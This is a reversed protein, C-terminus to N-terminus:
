YTEIFLEPHYNMLSDAQKESVVFFTIADGSIEHGNEKLSNIIPQFLKRDLPVNNPKCFTTYCVKGGKFVKANDILEQPLEIKHATDREIIIWNDYDLPVSDSKLIPERIRRTWNAVPFFEIWKKKLLDNKSDKEYNEFGQTNFYYLDPLEKIVFKGKLHQIDHLMQRFIELKHIKKELLRKEMDLAKKRQVVSKEIYDFCDWNLIQSTEDITFGFSRFVRCMDFRRLDDLSYLRYNNSADRKPYLIGKNEYYRLTEVSSGVAGAM